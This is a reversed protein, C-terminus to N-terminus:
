EEIKRRHSLAASITASDAYSLNTGAPLGQALVTIKKVEDHYRDALMFMTARAEVDSGLALILEEIKGSKVRETLGIINLDAETKNTLPSLKGGLIHYVGRFSNSKEILYLQSIDEIVCIQAHDRSEDSCIPCPTDQTILNYCIPCRVLSQPLEAILKGFAELNDPSWKLMALALREASRGGISPLQQLGEILEQLSEPYKKKM